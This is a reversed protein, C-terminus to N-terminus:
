QKWGWVGMEMIRSTQGPKVESPVSAAPTSWATGELKFQGSEMPLYNYPQGTIVDRPFLGEGLGEIGELSKPLGGTRLRHREIACAIRAQDYMSQTFALRRNQISLGNEGGKVIMTYPTRRKTVWTQSVQDSLTANVRHNGPDIPRLFQDEYYASLSLLNQLHWGEPILCAYAARQLWSHPRDSTLMDLRKLPPTAIVQDVQYWTGTAEAFWAQQWSALVDVKQLDQELRQIQADNWQHQSLGEWIPQLTIRLVALRLLQSILHPEAALHNAVLLSTHIDKLGEETQGKRLHVVARLCLLRARARMGILAPISDPTYDKLLRCHPRNAAEELGTLLSDYGKLFAELDKEKLLDALAKLDVQQGQQWGQFIPAESLATPVVPGKDGNVGTIADRISPHAAFNEDDPIVPPALRELNLIRGKAMQDQTWRRYARKARVNEILHFATLALGVFILFVFMRRLLKVM